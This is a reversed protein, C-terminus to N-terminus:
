GSSETESPLMFRFFGSEDSVPVRLERAESVVVPPRVYGVARLTAAAEMALTVATHDGTVPAGPCPGDEEGRGYGLADALICEIEMSEGMVARLRRKLEEVSVDCLWDREGSM